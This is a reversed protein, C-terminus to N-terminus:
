LFLRNILSNLVDTFLVHCSFFDFILSATTELHGINVQLIESYFFVSDSM